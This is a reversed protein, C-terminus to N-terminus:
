RPEVSANLAFGPMAGFTIDAIPLADGAICPLGADAFGQSADPLWGEPHKPVSQAPGAHGESSTGAGSFGDAAVVWCQPALDCTLKPGAHRPLSISLPLDIM